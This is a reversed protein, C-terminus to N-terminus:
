NNLDRATFQANFINQYEVDLSRASDKVVKSILSLYLQNSNIKGHTLIYYTKTPCSRVSSCIYTHLNCTELSHMYAFM